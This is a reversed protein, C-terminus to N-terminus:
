DMVSPRYDKPPWWKEFDEYKPLGLEEPSKKGIGMKHYLWASSCELRAAKKDADAGFVFQKKFYRKKLLDQYAPTELAHLFAKKVAMLIPKPTDRKFALNYMGGFPAFAKTAPIIQTVSKLTGIGPIEIDTDSFIALNRLKGAKIFEVQEHLGSGAVDVDGQLCALTAPAGGDYPINKFTFGGADAVISIAEAWLGGKGDTSIRITDPKAKAMKVLDEFSKIPSNPMVSWSAISVSAQFYQWDRWAATKNIDMIRLYRSYDSGGLWTYGDSPQESVYNVAISGLAGTMNTCNISQGLVEEMGKALTRLNLDTGGGAAFQIVMRVARKPKWEEQALAVSSGFVGPMQLSSAVAAASAYKLFTRRDIGKKEM